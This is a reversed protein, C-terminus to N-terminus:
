STVFEWRKDEKNLITYDDMHKPMFTHKAPHIFRTITNYLYHDSSYTTDQECCVWLGETVAGLTQNIIGLCLWSFNISSFVGFASLFRRIQCIKCFFALLYTVPSPNLTWQWCKLSNCSVSPLVTTRHNAGSYKTAECCSHGTWSWPRETHIKCTRM